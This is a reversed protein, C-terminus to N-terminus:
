EGLVALVRRRVEASTWLPVEEELFRRRDEAGIETVGAHLLAKTRRYTERPHSALLELVETARALPDDALEDVLGLRLAGEPDHLQAGLLAEHAKSADLRSRCIALVRPPFCAGLAVENLGVRLSPARSLVRHDCCLALVCGGAIAHGDIAAVTPAPHDFLRTALEEIRGLFTPMDQASTSALERLDLGACFSGGDGTLLVPESGAAELEGVLWTMLDTGLANRAPHRM